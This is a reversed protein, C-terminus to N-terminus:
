QMVMAGAMADVKGLEFMMNTIWGVIFQVEELPIPAKLDPFHVQIIAFVPRFSLGDGCAGPTNFWTEAASIAKYPNSGLFILSLETLNALFTGERIYWDIFRSANPDYCLYLYVLPYKHLSRPQPLIQGPDDLDSYIKLVSLQPCAKTIRILCAVTCGVFSRLTLHQVSRLLLARSLLSKEEFSANHIELHTLNKMRTEIFLASLTGEQSTGCIIAM